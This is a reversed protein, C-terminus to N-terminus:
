TGTSNFDVVLSNPVCNDEITRTLNSSISSKNCDIIKNPLNEPRLEAISTDKNCFLVNTFLIVIKKTVLQM